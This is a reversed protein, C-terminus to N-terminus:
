FKLAHYLKEKPRNSYSSCINHWQEKSVRGNWTYTSGIHSKNFFKLSFGDALCTTPVFSESWSHCGREVGLTHLHNLFITSFRQVHEPSKFRVMMPYQRDYNKSCTDKWWWAKTVNTLHSTIVDTNAYEEEDNYYEILNCINGSYGVDDEIVWINRYCNKLQQYWYNIAEVHMGWALSCRNEKKIRSNSYARDINIENLNPYLSLLNSEQYEHFHIDQDLLLNNKFAAHNNITDIIQKKVSLNDPVAENHSAGCTVRKHRKKKKKGRNTIIVDSTNSNVRPLTCDVSIWFDIKTKKVGICNTRSNDTIINNQKIQYCWTLIREIASMSPNYTRILFADAVVEHKQEEKKRKKKTSSSASIKRKKGM